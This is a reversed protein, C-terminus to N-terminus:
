LCTSNSCNVRACLQLLQYCLGLINRLGFCHLNLNTFGFHHSQVGSLIHVTGLYHFQLIGLLTHLSYKSLFRVRHYVLLKLWSIRVGHNPVEVWCMQTTALVLLSTYMSKWYYAKMRHTPRVQFFIIRLCYNAHILTSIMRMLLHCELKVQCIMQSLHIWFLFVTSYLNM